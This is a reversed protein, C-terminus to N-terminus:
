GGMMRMSRRFYEREFLVKMANMYRGLLKAMQQSCRMFSTHWKCWRRVSCMGPLVDHGDIHIAHFYSYIFCLASDWTPTLSADAVQIVASSHVCKKMFRAVIHVSQIIPLCMM